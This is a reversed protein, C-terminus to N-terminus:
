PTAYIIAPPSERAGQVPEIFGCTTAQSHGEAGYGLRCHKRSTSIALRLRPAERQFGPPHGDELELAPLKCCMGGGPASLSRPGYGPGTSPGLGHGDGHLLPDWHAAGPGPRKTRLAGDRRDRRGSGVNM